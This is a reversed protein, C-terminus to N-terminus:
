FCGLVLKGRCGLFHALFDNSLSIARVKLFIRPSKKRGGKRPIETEGVNQLICVSVLMWSCALIVSRIRAVRQARRRIVKPNPRCKKAEKGLYHVCPISQASLNGLMGRFILATCHTFIRSFLIFKLKIAEFNKEGMNTFMPLLTGQMKKRSLM